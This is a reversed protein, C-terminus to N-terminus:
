VGMDMNLSDECESLDDTRSVAIIRIGQKIRLCVIQDVLSYHPSDVGVEWLGFISSPFVVCINGFRGLVKRRGVM